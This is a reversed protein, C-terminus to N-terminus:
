RQADLEALLKMLAVPDIPKVLHRDFGADQSRRRDEDQGWGTVAILCAPAGDASERIRRCAEYGNLKPLGIDLLVVDPRLRLAADVAEQGDYAAHTENGGLRLMLSLTDAADRNDDVVLIRLASTSAAPPAVDASPQTTADVVIPLRVIFESGRGLGESRAEVCGGHMEVLRKVLTLGIGLGGRSRELSADLQRFMDFISGLKDAPIGIGSDRVSVVLDGAQSEATLTIRGGPESYKAANTLLNALVQALRVADADVVVTHGPQAVSLVHGMQDILPQAAEVAGDIVTALPVRTRRLEIRGTTIRSLDLLDDVLRAMHTVQREMTGCANDVVAPDGDALKIVHLVNRIPALPNRLEHALTALFEDKRRSNESLEAAVHRLDDELKKRDTVDYNIGDFRVAAGNEYTARGASRVWRFEGTNPNVVRHDVAYLAGDRLATEMALRTAERDDPHLRSWFLDLTPEAGPPVFFLERTRDDWNLASLPLANLWMGVGTTDLAFALQATRERLAQEVRKQETIDRSVGVVGVVQGAEDRLPTKTSLFIRKVGDACTYPEEGGAVAGTDFVRQDLAAIAPRDAPDHFRAEESADVAAEYSMGMAKLTAANAYMLRGARDKVFILETTADNVTRVLREREHAAAEAQKRQTIDRFVLVCGVIEGQRGRIPAASDDIARETGDKAILVTHNALGVITGERLAKTAPNEVPRRTSENVIRFVAELPRGAAEACTWGCLMEAVPNMSAIRGDADTTIVGDGICALTTRLREAQEATRRRARRAAEGLGAFALCVLGYVVLGNSHPGTPIKFTFRPPVFFYWTTALGLAAAFLAPGFGGWWAMAAVAVFFTPFPVHDDLFPDVLGRLVGAVVVAAIASLYVAVDRPTEDSTM